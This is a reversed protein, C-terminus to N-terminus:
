RNRLGRAGSGHKLLDANAGRRCWTQSRRRRTQHGPVAHMENRCQRDSQPIKQDQQGRQSGRRIEKCVKRAVQLATKATPRMAPDPDTMHVALDALVPFAAMVTAPLQRKHRLGELVAAREMQTQVPCIIEALVLGLSYVDTSTECNQGLLQEPSAYSPTGVTGRSGRAPPRVPSPSPSGICSNEESTSAKALGFDALRVNDKCDFLINSPKVDRHVTHRSHIHVLACVCQLFINSARRAWAANVYNSKAFQWNRDAVWAQLTDEKCLDVQLYLTATYEAQESDQRDFLRGFGRCGQPTPKAESLKVESADSVDEENWEFFVM